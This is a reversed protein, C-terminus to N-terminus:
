ESTKVVGIKAFVHGLKILESQRGTNTKSFISKLQTRLTAIRVRKEEAIDNLRKGQIIQNALQAEAPTLLFAQRLQDKLSISANVESVVVLALHQDALDFITASPRLPAVTVGWRDGDITELIIGGGCKEADHRNFSAAQAILSRLRATEFDDVAHLRGSIARLVEGTIFLREAASNRRVIRGGKDVLLIADTLNDLAAATHKGEQQAARLRHEVRAVRRLHQVLREMLKADAQDFASDHPGRTVAFATTTQKDNFPYVGLLFRRGAPLSYDNFFESRRVLREDIYNTCNMPTGPPLDSLIERRPNLRHYYDWEPHDDAFSSSRYGSIRTGSTNDWHFVHASNAGFLHDCLDLTDNWAAPAAAAEYLGDVVRHLLTSQHKIHM